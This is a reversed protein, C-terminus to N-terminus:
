LNSGWKIPNYIKSWEEQLRKIEDNQEKLIALKLDRMFEKWDEDTPSTNEVDYPVYSM